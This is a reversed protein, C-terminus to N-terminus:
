CNSYLVTIDFESSVHQSKKMISEARDIEADTPTSPNGRDRLLDVDVGYEDRLQKKLSEESVGYTPAISTLFRFM